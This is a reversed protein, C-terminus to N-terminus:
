NDFPTPISNSNTEAVQQPAQKEFEEDTMKGLYSVANLYVNVVQITGLMQIARVQLAQNAQGLHRAAVNQTETKLISNVKISGLASNEVEPDAFSVEGAILHFHYLNL